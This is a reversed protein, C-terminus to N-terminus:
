LRMPMVVLKCDKDGEALILCSSNPDSITLLVEETKIVNLADLLYSVNFGIEMEPGQYKVEIEEEAEEQEPNHTLAKITNQELIIRVGRYKENSLISARTLAQRLVEKNATVPNDNQKPIVRNYDPFKGEILKSTFRLTGLDIRIHNHSIEVGADGQEGDLIRVLETVAKRPIIIQKNGTEEHANATECLALRHGDTAVARLIGKEVELLLGNLYYRVDQQAMAFATRDLLSRLVKCPIKFEATKNINEVLPFEKAALTSLTFRSKGSTVLVREGKSEILMKSNEPLTRCIDLLKRAPITLEGTSDIHNEITVVLEVEMDTATLTLSKKEAVLLLNSLIPLTQRREVVGNVIQLAPLLQERHISFKM